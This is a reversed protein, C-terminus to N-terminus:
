KYANQTCIYYIYQLMGFSKLSFLMFLVLFRIGDKWLLSKGGM